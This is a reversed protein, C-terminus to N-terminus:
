LSLKFARAIYAAMQDRTCVYELHYEGDPYGQVVGHAVCYEVHKYAWFSTAVDPFTPSTPPMYSALGAEGTPTVMARAIFVAMQGRDLEVAPAYNGNPYGQVIGQAFAYEVYRYAWHDPQVDPFSAQAPGTPVNADGAALARSIYVAMQDRTVALEPHYSGDPYGAVIEARACAHIYDVAWHEWPVDSFLAWEPVLHVIQSDYADAVWISSDGANVAVAVPYDFQLDVMLASGDAALHALWGWGDTVWCSGDAPNAAVATIDVLGATCSLPEGEKSIHAVACSDAIWCSGDSTNVGVGGRGSPFGRWLETGDAALHVAYDDDPWSSGTGVWCSGDSPDSSVAVAAFGGHRWVESADSSYHVVRNEDSYAVWCSGDVPSASASSPVTYDWEPHAEYSNGLEAGNEAFHVVMFGGSYGISTDYLVSGAAWCSGDTPDVSVYACDFSLISDEPFSHTGRWLVRGDSALHMVEFGCALWCSGDVPDVSASTAGIEEEWLLGGDASVHSVKNPYGYLNPFTVVWCSGDSSNVSVGVIGEFNGRWLETGDAAFHYLLGYGLTPSLGYDAIWCSGDAGNVALDRVESWGELSGRWLERGDGALHVIQTVSDRGDAVWVSGDRSDVAIAHPWYNFNGGRWITQGDAALHVLRCNDADTIWCSGDRPDVAAETPSLFGEHYRVLLTGDSGFRVANQLGGDAAWCSGDTPDASVARLGSNLFPDSFYSADLVLNGDSDLRQIAGSPPAALWCSGDSADVSLSSVDRLFAATSVWRTSGDSALCTIAESTRDAVRCSGDRPDVSVSIPGRFGDYYDLGESFSADWRCIYQPSMEAVWCSSDRPDVCVSIPAGFGRVLDVSGLALLAVSNHGSDAVWCRGNNPDVSLSQTGYGMSGWLHWTGMLTGDRSVREVCEGEWEFISGIYCSRDAPYVGLGTAGWAPVTLLEEGQPSLLVVQDHEPDAVWCSGDSPDVAVASASAFEDGRWLVTGEKSLHLVAGNSEGAALDGGTGSDESGWGPDAVWCSGDRPDVSLRWPTSLGRWEQLM